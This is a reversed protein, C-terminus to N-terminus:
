PREWGDNFKPIISFTETNNESFIHPIRLYSLLEKKEKEKKGGTQQTKWEKEFTPSERYFIAQNNLM